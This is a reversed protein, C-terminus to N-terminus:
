RRRGSAYANGTVRSDSARHMSSPASTGIVCSVCVLVMAVIEPASVGRRSFGVEASAAMPLSLLTLLSAESVPLLRFSRTVLRQALLGLM